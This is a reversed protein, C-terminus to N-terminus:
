NANEEMYAFQCVKPKQKKFLQSMGTGSGTFMGWTCQDSNEFFLTANSSYNYGKYVEKFRGDKVGSKFSGTYSVSTPFDYIEKLRDDAEFKFKGSIIQTKNLGPKYLYYGRYDNFQRVKMGILEEVALQTYNKVRKLKLEGKQIEEVVDEPIYLESAGGYVWGNLNKKPVKVKYWPADQMKGRIETKLTFDTKENLYTAEEGEKLTYLIKGKIDPSLRIRLSSVKSIVYNNVKITKSPKTNPKTEPTEEGEDSKCSAFGLLLFLLFTYFKM